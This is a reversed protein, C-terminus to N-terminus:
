KSKQLNQISTIYNFTLYLGVDVKPPVRVFGIASDKFLLDKQGPFSAFLQFESAKNKGFKEQKLPFFFLIMTVLLLCFPVM